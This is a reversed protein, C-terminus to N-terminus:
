ARDRRNMGYRLVAVALAVVVVACEAAAMAPFVAVAWRVLRTALPGHSTLVTGATVVAVALAPLPAVFGLARRRVAALAALLAGAAAGVVVGWGPERGVLADVGDGLLLPGLLM